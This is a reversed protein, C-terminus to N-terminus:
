EDILKDLLKRQYEQKQNEDILDEQRFQRLAILRVRFKNVYPDDNNEPENNTSVQPISSPKPVKNTIDDLPLSGRPLPEDKITALLVRYSDTFKSDDQFDVRNIHQLFPPIKTARRYLPILRKQRETIDIHHTVYREVNVWESEASAPSMILCVKRSRPLAYELREPISEGPKIDWPAFFVVLNRGQWEEQELRIALEKAWTEDAQNYSIFVDYKYDAENTM